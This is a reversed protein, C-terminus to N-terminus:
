EYLYSRLTEFIATIIVWFYLFYYFDPNIYPYIATIVVIAIIARVSNKSFIKYDNWFFFAHIFSLSVIITDILDFKFYNKHYFETDVFFVLIAMWYLLVLSPVLCVLKNIKKM